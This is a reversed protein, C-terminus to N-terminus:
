HEFVFATARSASRWATSWESSTEVKRKVETGGISIEAEGISAKREPDITVCHLSSLMKDLDVPEGKFIHEWESMPVGRPAGPALRIYLKASKLDKHLKRILNASKVCNPNIPEDSEGYRGHWPMDSQRLKRRKKPEDEEEDSSPSSEEESPGPTGVNDKAKAAVTQVMREGKSTRERLSREKGKRRAATEVAEIEALYLDFARTREQQSLGEDENLHRTISSIVELRSKARERYLDILRDIEVVYSRISSPEDSQTPDTFTASSGEGPNRENSSVDEVHEMAKEFRSAHARKEGHSM